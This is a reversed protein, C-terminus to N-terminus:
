FRFRETKKESRFSSEMSKPLVKSLSLSWTGTNTCSLEPERGAAARRVPLRLRVWHCGTHSQTPCDGAAARSRSSGLSCRCRGPRLQPGGPGSARFRADACFKFRQSGVQLGSCRRRAAASAASQLRCGRSGTQSPSPPQLHGATLELLWPGCKANHCRPLHAFTSFTSHVM